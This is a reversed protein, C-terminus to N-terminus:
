TRGRARRVVRQIAEDKTDLPLGNQRYMRAIASLHPPVVSQGRIEGAERLYDAVQVPTLPFRLKHERRWQDFAQEIAWYIRATNESVAFRAAM